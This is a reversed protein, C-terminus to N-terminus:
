YFNTKKKDSSFYFNLKIWDIYEMFIQIKKLSIFKYYYYKILWIYSTSGTLLRILCACVLRLLISARTLSSVKLTGVGLVKWSVAVWQMWFGIVDYKGVLSGCHSPPGLSTRRWWRGFWFWSLGWTGFWHHFSFALCRASIWCAHNFECSVSGKELVSCLSIDFSSCLNHCEDKRKTENNLIYM